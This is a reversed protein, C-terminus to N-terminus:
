SAGDALRDFDAETYTMDQMGRRCAVLPAWDVRSDADGRNTEAFKWRPFRRPIAPDDLAM